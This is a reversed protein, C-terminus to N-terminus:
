SAGRQRVRRTLWAFPFLAVAALFGLGGGTALWGLKEYAPGESATSSESHAV